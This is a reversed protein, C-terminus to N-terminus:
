CSRPTVMPFSSLSWGAATQRIKSCILSTGRPDPLSAATWAMNLAQAASRPRAQLSSLTPLRSIEMGALGPRSRALGTSMWPWTSMTQSFFAAVLCSKVVSGMRSCTWPSQTVASPVVSPASLPMPQAM